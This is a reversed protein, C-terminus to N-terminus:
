LFPSSPPTSSIHTCNSPADRVAEVGPDLMGDEVTADVVGEAEAEAEVLAGAFEDVDVDGDEVGLLLPSEVGALAPM